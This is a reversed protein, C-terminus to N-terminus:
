STDGLPVAPPVPEEDLFGPAVVRRRALGDRAHSKVAGLSIGLAEATGAETCDDFYRLVLVARQRPSLTSLAALLAGRDDPREDSVIEPLDAVSRERWRRGRWRSVSERALVRRVCPEPHAAIRSWKPVVRLLTTQVLDEADHHSGTLLYASRLLAPRRAAVFEEFGEQGRDPGSM